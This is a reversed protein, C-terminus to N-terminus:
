INAYKEKPYCHIHREYSNIGSDWLCKANPKGMGIWFEANHRKSLVYPADSKGLSEIDPLKALYNGNAWWFTGSYHPLPDIRWDVGVCDHTKLASECIDHRDVLFHLMYNRWDEIALNFSSSVGKTHIYLYTDEHYVKAINQLLAMTPFEFQSTGGLRVEKVWSPMKIKGDGVVGVTILSSRLRSASIRAFMENVIREYDGMTAIHFFVRNM